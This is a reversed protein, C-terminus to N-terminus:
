KSGKAPPPPIKVDIEYEVTPPTKRKYGVHLDLTEAGPQPV